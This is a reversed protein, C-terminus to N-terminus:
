TPKRAKLANVNVSLLRRVAETHLNLLSEMMEPGLRYHGALWLSLLEALVAGQIGPPEGALLPKVANVLRMVHRTDPTGLDNSSSM